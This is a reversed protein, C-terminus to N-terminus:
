MGEHRRVVEEVSIGNAINLFEDLTLDPNYYKILHLIEDGIYVPINGGIYYNYDNATEVGTAPLYQGTVKFPEDALPTGLVANVVEFMCFIPETINNGGVAGLLVGNEFHTGMDPYYDIISVKVDDTKGLSELANIIATVIGPCYNAAQCQIGDLEPYAAILNEVVKTADAAETVGRTFNVINVGFEEAAKSAGEDRGDGTLNGITMAFVAVNKRGDDALIKMADYGTKIDDASSGGVYYSCAELDAKIDPDACDRYVFAFYVGAEECARQVRPVISDACPTMILGSVGAAIASEVGNVQEEPTDSAQAHIFEGGATEVITRLNNIQATRESDTSAGWVAAIKFPKPAPVGEALATTVIGLLVLAALVLTLTKKM